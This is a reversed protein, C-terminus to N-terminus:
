GRCLGSSGLYLVTDLKCVIGCTNYNALLHKQYWNKKLDTFNTLILDISKSGEFEYRHFHLNLSLLYLTLFFKKNEKLSFPTM